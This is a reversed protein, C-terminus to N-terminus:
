SPMRRPKGHEIGGGRWVGHTLWTEYDVLWSMLWPVVTDSLSMTPSWDIEPHFVCPHEHGIDHEKYTHPIPVDPAAPRRTLKPSEVFVSPSTESRYEIRVAYVRMLPSPEILGRAVLVSRVDTVHFGPWTRRFRIMQETMTLASSSM